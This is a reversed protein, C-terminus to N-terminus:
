MGTGMDMGSHGPDYTENAGAYVKALAWFKLQEGNSGILTVPISAGATVPKKLGMFMIHDGGPKLVVTKGAPIVLGTGKEQMVMANTQGDMVVEHIQLMSSYQPSRAAIIRIDKNTPNTIMGFAATMGSDAAKVWMDKSTLPSQSKTLGKSWKKTPLCVYTKNKVVTTAGTMTCTSGAKPAKAAQASVPVMVLAFMSVFVVIVKKVFVEQLYNSIVRVIDVLQRPLLHAEPGSM